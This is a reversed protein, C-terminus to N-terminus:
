NVERHDHQAAIIWDRAWLDKSIGFLLTLGVWSLVILNKGKSNRVVVIKTELIIKGDTDNEINLFRLLKTM